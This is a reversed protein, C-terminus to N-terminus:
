IEAKGEKELFYSYKLKKKRKLFVLEVKGEEELFYRYGNVFTNQGLPLFSIYFYLFLPGASLSLVHPPPPPPRLPPPPQLAFHVVLTKIKVYVFAHMTCAHM